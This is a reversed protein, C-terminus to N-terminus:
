VSCYIVCFQNQRGWSALTLGGFIVDIEYINGYEKFIEEIYTWTQKDITLIKNHKIAKIRMDILDINLKEKVYDLMNNLENELFLEYWGDDFFSSFLIDRDERSLSNVYNRREELPKSSYKSWFKEFRDNEMCVLYAVFRVLEQM